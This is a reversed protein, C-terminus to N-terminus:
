VQREFVCQAFLRLHLAAEPLRVVVEFADRREGGPARRLEAVTSGVVGMVILSVWEWCVASSTRSRMNAFSRAELDSPMCTVAMAGPRARMVMATRSSMSLPWAMQWPPKTAVNASEAKAKAQLEYLSSVTAEPKAISRM